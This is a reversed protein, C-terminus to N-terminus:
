SGLVDVQLLGLSIGQYTIDDKQGVFDTTIV